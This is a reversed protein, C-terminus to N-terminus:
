MLTQYSDVKPLRCKIVWWINQIHISYWIRTCNLLTSIIVGTDNENRRWKRCKERGRKEVIEHSIWYITYYTHVTCVDFQMMNGNHVCIHEDKYIKHWRFPPLSLFSLFIHVDFSSISSFINYWFYIASCEDYLITYVNREASANDDVRKDYDSGYMLEAESDPKERNPILPACSTTTFFVTHRRYIFSCPLGFHFAAIYGAYETSNGNM